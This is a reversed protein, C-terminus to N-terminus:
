FHPTIKLSLNSPHKKQSVGQVLVTRAVFGTERKVQVVREVYLLSARFFGHALKSEFFDVRKEAWFFGHTKGM